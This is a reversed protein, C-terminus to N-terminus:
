KLRLFDPLPPAPPMEATPQASMLELVQGLDQQPIIPGHVSAIRQIDLRKMAQLGQRFLSVDIRSLMNFNMHQWLSFGAAFAEAPVQEAFHAVPGLHISGFADSSFYTGTKNDFLWYTHGDEILSPEVRIQRDGLDIEEGPFVIAFKEAPIGFLSTGKGFATPSSVIRAKPALKLIERVGGAHDLDMHTLFIYDLNELDIIKSVSEITGEISFPTSTDVLINKQSGKIAYYNVQLQGEGIPFVDPFYYNGEAIEYYVSM